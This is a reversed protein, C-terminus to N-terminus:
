QAQQEQINKLTGMDLGTIDSILELPVGKALANRVIAERGEERGRELGEELGEEHWVQKADDWNWETLLMNEVETANQRLFEKLINHELCYKVAEKIAGKRNKNEKEYEQVKGVFASYAALTECRKVVKENRGMNINIVRVVLELAPRGNDPLGLSTGSEFTDSLKLVTEDVYPAKGNYLVFFEPKPLRILRTSYIAKADTIKEYIRAIYLLLRLCMNPNITSQHEVLIVLKDGIEFSIDNVKDMFLVDQLTNITVPVDLPLTVGELACYLERLKEPDSFLLSFVSNKYKINAGM